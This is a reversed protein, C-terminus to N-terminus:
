EEDDDLVEMPSCIIIPQYGERSNIKATMEKTKLKILHKFNFTLLCDIQHITASAIHLADFQFKKPIVQENIYINALNSTEENLELISINYKDSLRLMDSKKPEPANKLEINVYESTFGVFKGWGIAEFMRVTASHGDREKDFYYNFMSTELYVRLKEMIM